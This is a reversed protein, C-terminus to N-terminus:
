DISAGDFVQGVTQFAGEGLVLLIHEPKVIKEGSCYAKVAQLLGIAPCKDVIRGLYFTSNSAIGGFPIELCVGKM